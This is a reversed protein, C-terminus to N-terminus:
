APALRLTDGARVQLMATADGVFDDATGYDSLFTVPRV